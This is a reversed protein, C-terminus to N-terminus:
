CPWVNEASSCRAPASVHRSYRLRIRYRRRAPRVGADHITLNSHRRGIARRCVRSTQARSVIEFQAGHGSQNAVAKLLANSRLSSPLVHLGREAGKPHLAVPNVPVYPASPPKRFLGVHAPAAPERGMRAVMARHRQRSPHIPTAAARQSPASREPLDHRTTTQSRSPGAVSPGCCGM